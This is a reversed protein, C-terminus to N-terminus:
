PMYRCFLQEGFNKRLEHFPQIFNSEYLGWQYQQLEALQDHQYLEDYSLNYFLQSWETIGVKELNLNATDTHPM